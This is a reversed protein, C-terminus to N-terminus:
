EDEKPALVYAPQGQTTRYMRGLYEGMLGLVLFQLASLLLMLGPIFLAHNWIAVVELIVGVCGLIVAFVLAFVLPRTSKAFTCKWWHTLLKTFNYGSKGAIRAQHEIPYTIVRSCGWTFLTSLNFDSTKLEDAIARVETKFVRYASSARASKVGLLWEECCKSCNSLLDRLPSHGRQLPTLLLLHCNAEHFRKLADALPELPHQGDDDTTISTDYMAQRMGALTAAHQGFNRIMRFARIHYSPDQVLTDIVEQLNDPSDDNVLIVEWGEVPYTETFFHKLNACVTSITKASGYCPIIVSYGKQLRNM